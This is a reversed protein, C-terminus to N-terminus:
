HMVPEGGPWLATVVLSGPRGGVELPETPAFAALDVVHVRGADPEAVYAFGEGVALDALPSGAGLDLSRREEGTVPDLDLLEGSDLLVLLMMGDRDSTLVTVEGDLPVLRATANSRDVLLLGEDTPGAFTPLDDEGMLHVPRSAGEPRAVRLDDFAETAENWRSLLMDGACDFLATFGAATGAGPGDCALSIPDEFGEAGQSWRDVGGDARTVFLHGRAVTAVGDHPAGEVTRFIPLRSRPVDTRLPGISREFLATTRGSADDFAVIWGSNVQVDSLGDAYALDPDVQIVAPDKYVHFHDVHDWVWVGVAFVDFRGASPQAAVAATIQRNSAAHLTSPASLTYSTVLARVDLDWVSVLGEDQDAVSLRGLTEFVEGEPIDSM